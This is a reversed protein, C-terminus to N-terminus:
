VESVYHAAETEHVVMEPNLGARKCAKVFRSFDRAPWFDRGANSSAIRYATAKYTYGLDKIPLNTRM